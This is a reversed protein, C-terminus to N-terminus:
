ASEEEEDSWADEDDVPRPLRGELWDAVIDPEMDNTPCEIVWSLYERPGGNLYPPPSVPKFRTPLPEQVSLTNLVYALEQVVSWALPHDLDLSFKIWWLQDDSGSGFGRRPTANTQVSPVRELFELLKKFRPHHDKTDEM